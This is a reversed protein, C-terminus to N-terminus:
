DLRTNNDQVCLVVPNGIHIRGGFKGKPHRLFGNHSLYAVPEDARGFLPFAGDCVQPHGHIVRLAPRSVGSPVEIGMRLVTAETIRFPRLYRTSLKTSMEASLCASSTARRSFAFSEAIIEPMSSPTIKASASLVM